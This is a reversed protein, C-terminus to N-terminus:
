VKGIELEEVNLVQLNLHCFCVWTASSCYKKKGCNGCIPVGYGCEACYAQVGDLPGYLHASCQPCNM